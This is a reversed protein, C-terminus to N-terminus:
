HFASAAPPKPFNAQKHLVFNQSHEDVGFIVETAGM